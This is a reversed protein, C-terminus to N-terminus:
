SERRVQRHRNATRAPLREISAKRTLTFDAAETSLNGEEDCVLMVRHIQRGHQREAQGPEVMPRTLRDEQTM